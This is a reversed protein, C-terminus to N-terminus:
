MHQLPVKCDPGVPGASRVVSGRGVFDKCECRRPGVNGHPQPAPQGRTRLTASRSLDSGSFRAPCARHLSDAIVAGDTTEDYRGLVTIMPAPTMPSPM